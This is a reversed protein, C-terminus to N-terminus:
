LGTVEVDESSNTQWTEFSSNFFCNIPHPQPWDQYHYEIDCTTYQTVLWHSATATYTGNLNAGFGYFVQAPLEMQTDPGTYFYAGGPGTIVGEVKSGYKTYEMQTCVDMYGDNSGDYVADM